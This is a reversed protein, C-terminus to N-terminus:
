ASRQFERTAALIEATPTFTAAVIDKGSSALYSQILHYGYAYGAAYPLGM